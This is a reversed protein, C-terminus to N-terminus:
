TYKVKYKNSRCSMELKSLTRKFTSGKKLRPQDPREPIKEAEELEKNGTFCCNEHTLPSNPIM